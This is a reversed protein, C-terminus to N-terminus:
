LWLLLLPLPTSHTGGALLPAPLLLVVPLLVWSYEQASGSLQEPSPVHMMMMMLRTQKWRPRHTYLLVDVWSGFPCWCVLSPSTNCGGWLRCRVHSSYLVHLLLLASHLHQHLICQLVLCHRGCEWDEINRMVQHIYLAALEFGGINRSASRAQLYRM